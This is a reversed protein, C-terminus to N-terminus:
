ALARPTFTTLACLLALAAVAQIATIKLWTKM